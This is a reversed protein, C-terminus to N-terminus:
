EKTFLYIASFLPAAIFLSGVGCWLAAPLPDFQYAALMVVGKLAFFASYVAASRM